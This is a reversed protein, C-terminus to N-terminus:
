AMEFRGPPQHGDPRQATVAPVPLVVHEGQLPPQL